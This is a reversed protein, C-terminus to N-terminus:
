YIKLSKVTATLVEPNLYATESSYIGEEPANLDIRLVRSEEWESLMETGARIGLVLGCKIKYIKGKILCYLVM